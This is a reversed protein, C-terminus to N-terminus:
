LSAKLSKAGKAGQDKTLICYGFKFYSLFMATTINLGGPAKKSWENQKRGKM